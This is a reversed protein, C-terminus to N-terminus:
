QMPQTSSGGLVPSPGSRSRTRVSTRSLRWSSSCDWRISTSIRSSFHRPKPTQRAGRRWGDGADEGSRRASALSAQLLAYFTEPDDRLDPEELKLENVNRYGFEDLYSAIDDLLAAVGPEARSARLETDATAPELGAVREVLREDAAISRAIEELRRAPRTSEVDGEPKVAEFLLWEPADPLWRETLKALAGFTLGISVELVVMRGWRALLRREMEGILVNVEHGSMSRYDLPEFHRYVRYFHDVFGGVLRDLTAFHWIFRSYTIATLIREEARTRTQFARQQEALEDDLPEDVGISLELIRRNVAYFPVLRSVRYWNLLNYYVRGDFTGLMNALWGDM